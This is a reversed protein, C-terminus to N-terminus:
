INFHLMHVVYMIIKTKTKYFYPYKIYGVYLFLVPLFSALINVTRVPLFVPPKEESVQGQLEVNELICM